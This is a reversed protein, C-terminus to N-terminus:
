GEISAYVEDILSQQEALQFHEALYRGTAVRSEGSLAMNLAVLRAGDLDGNDAPPATESSPAPSPVAPQPAREAAEGEAGTAEAGPGQAETRAAAAGQAGAHEGGAGQAGAREAHQAQGASATPADAHARQVRAPAAAHGAAAAYLEDMSADLAAV